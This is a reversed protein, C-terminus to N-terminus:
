FGRLFTHVNIMLCYNGLPFNISHLLNINYTMYVTVKQINTGKAKNTLTNIKMTLTNGFLFFHPQKYWM